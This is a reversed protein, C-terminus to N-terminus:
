NYLGLSCCLGYQQCVSMLVFFTFPFSSCPQAMAMRWHFLSLRGRIAKSPCILPCHCCWEKLSIWAARRELGSPKILILGGVLWWGTYDWGNDTLHLGRM